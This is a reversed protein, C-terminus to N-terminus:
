EKGEGDNSEMDLLDEQFTVVPAARSAPTSDVPRVVARQHCDPIFHNDGGCRICLRLRRRRQIEEQDVWRARRTNAGPQTIRRMANVNIMRTDGDVDVGNPPSPPATISHGREGGRRPALAELKYLVKMVQEIWKAYTEPLDIYVLAKRLGDNIACNLMSLKAADAWAAGGM